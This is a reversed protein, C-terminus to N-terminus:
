FRAHRKPLGGRAMRRRATRGPEAELLPRQAATAAETCGAGGARDRRRRRFPRPMFPATVTPRLDANSRIPLPSTRGQRVPLQVWAPIRPGRNTGRTYQKVAYVQSIPARRASRDQGRKQGIDVHTKRMRGQGHWGRSAGHVLPSYTGHSGPPRLSDAGPVLM